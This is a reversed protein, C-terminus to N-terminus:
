GMKKVETENIEQKRGVKTDSKTVYLVLNIKPNNKLAELIPTSRDSTGFFVVNTKKM